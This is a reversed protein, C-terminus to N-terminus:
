INKGDILIKRLIDKVLNFQKGMYTYGQGKTLNNGNRVLYSPHCFPVHLYEQDFLYVSKLGFNRIQNLISNVYKKTVFQYAERGLTIIIIPKVFNLQQKIAFQYDRRIKESFVINDKPKYPVLNTMYIQKQYQELLKFGSRFLQGSKGILPKGRKVEQLGLDRAIVFVKGEINGDYIIPNSPSQILDYQDDSHNHRIFQIQQSLDLYFIESHTNLM